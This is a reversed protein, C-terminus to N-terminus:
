RGRMRVIWYGGAKSHLVAKALDAIGPNSSEGCVRPIVIM